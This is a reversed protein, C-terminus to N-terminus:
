MSAPNLPILPANLHVQNGNLFARASMPKGGAPQLEHLILEGAVTGIRMGDNSDLGLFIGPANTNDSTPSPSAKVVRVRGKAGSFWAGPVPTFARIHLDLDRASRRWDIEAETPIIKRAYTANADDQPSAHSILDTLDDDSESVLDALLNANLDALKDHLSGTNDDEKIACERMALVPGTDLGAEMLMASIGTKTDGAAIARQIPAAGRWRPLLSAHGNICGFRPMALVSRPLLLGYAVVVFLDAQLAALAQLDEANKLTEPHRTLIGIEDAHRAVPQAIMRMGRGSKRPPQSYVAVIDHADALRALAPIAFEPSGMFVIRRRTM